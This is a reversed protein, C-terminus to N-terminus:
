PRARAPAARPSLSLALQDRLRQPAVPKTLWREGSADLRREVDPDTEGTIVVAPVSRGLSARLQPLLDLGTISGLSYDILILDPDIERLEAESIRAAAVSVKAGWSELLVQMAERIAPDDDIVLVNCGPLPDDSSRDGRSRLTPRGRPVSLSLVSGRGPESRLRLPHDLTRAIREVISLGLGHGEERTEGREFESFLRTRAEATFGPGTDWVQLEVCDGRSRAGILVGGRETYRIANIALNRLMRALLVRDSRVVAGTAAVRLKLGRTAAQSALEDDLAAFVPALSFDEVRPEIVGVELKSLELVSNLLEELEATSREIRGVLAQEESGVTRQALTGVFLSLAHLPQRLDHSAVALFRSKAENADREARSALRLEDNRLSLLAVGARDALRTMAIVDSQTYIDGSRKRGIHVFYCLEPGRRIALTLEDDRHAGDPSSGLEVLQEPDRTWEPASAGDLADSGPTGSTAVVRLPGDAAYIRCTEPRLAEALREVLRHALETESRESLLEHELDHLQDRLTVRAPFFLQEVRPRLRRQLPVVAVGAVLALGIEASAEPAGVAVLGSAALPGLILGTALITLLVVSYTATATVLRDVDFANYAILAVLFCIPVALFTVNGITVFVFLSPDLLTLLGGIVTPTLGVYIGILVWRLQRRGAASARYYSVALIWCIAASVILNGGFALPAGLGYPLAIGAFLGLWGFGQVAVFWPLIAAARGTRATEAPFHLLAKIACTTGLMNGLTYTAMGAVIQTESGATYWAMHLALGICGLFFYRGAATSGAGLFGLVAVIAMALSNTPASWGSVSTSQFLWERTEGDRSFVVPVRGDADLSSRKVLSVEFGSAGRLDRGGISLIQDGEQVELGEILGPPALANVIPYADPADAAAGFGPEWLKNGAYTDVTLAFAVAWLATFGVFLVRDWPKLRRFM